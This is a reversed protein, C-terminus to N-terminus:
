VDKEDEPLKIRTPQMVARVAAMYGQQIHTRALAMWRKDVEPSKELVDFGRLVAEEGWKISNVVDLKAASIDQYGAIPPAKHDPTATM